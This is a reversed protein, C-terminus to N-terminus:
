KVGRFYSLRSLGIIFKVSVAEERPRRIRDSVDANDVVPSGSSGLRLPKDGEPLASATSGDPNAEILDRKPLGGSSSSPIESSEVEAPIVDVLPLGDLPFGAGALSDFVDSQLSAPDKVARLLMVLRDGTWSQTAHLRNKASFKIVGKKFSLFKGIQSLSPFPCKDKGAPDEVWVGWGSFGGLSIGVHDIGANHSDKRPDASVNHLLNITTYVHGPAKRQAFQNLARTVFPYEKTSKLLGAVGGRRFCSVAFPLDDSPVIGRPASGRKVLGFIKRIQNPQIDSHKALLDEAYEEAPDHAVLSSPEQCDESSEEHSEALAALGHVFQVKSTFIPVREDMRTAYYKARGACDIRLRTMFSSHFHVLYGYSPRGLNLMWAPAEFLQATTWCTTIPSLCIIPRLDWARRVLSLDVM